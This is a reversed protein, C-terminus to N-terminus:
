TTDYRALYVDLLTCLDPNLDRTKEQLLSAECTNFCRCPDRDREKDAWGESKGETKIFHM